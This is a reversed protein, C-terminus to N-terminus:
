KPIGGNDNGFNDVNQGCGSSSHDLAREFVDVADQEQRRTVHTYIDMTTQISSHGLRTQVAKVPAGAEILISTHSHRLSHFSFDIGTKNALWVMKRAVAHRDLIQGNERRVVFDVDGDVAKELRGDAIRYRTWYEGYEGANKEQRAKEEELIAKLTPGIIIDRESAPTKLTTERGDVFQRRLHIVGEKMDVRDWTLSVAENVRMGTHWALQMALRYPSDEDLSSVLTEFQEQSIATGRIPPAANEPIHTGAAPNSEIYGLTDVAYRLAGSLISHAVGISAKSYGQGYLRDLWDQVTARTLSALSRPGLFPVIRKRVSTRYVKITSDKLNAACWGNLWYQMYDAVSMTSPEFVKGTRNYKTWAESGAKMADKKTEFGSKSYQKRKGDISAMEFRYEWKQGRKRCTVGAM